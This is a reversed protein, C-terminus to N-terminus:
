TFVAEYQMAEGAPGVPVLFLDFAGLGENEMRYTSQPLIPRLPGNFLLSFANRGGEQAQRGFARAEVLRTEVSSGDELRIVFPEGIRPAFTDHTFTELM